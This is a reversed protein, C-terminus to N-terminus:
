MNRIIITTIVFWIRQPCVMSYNKRQGNDAKQTLTTASVLRTRLSCCICVFSRWITIYKYESTFHPALSTFLSLRLFNCFGVFLFFYFVFALYCLWSRSHVSELLGLPGMCAHLLYNMHIRSYELIVWLM